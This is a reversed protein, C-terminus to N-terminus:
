LPLHSLSVPEPALEPAVAEEIFAALEVPAAEVPVPTLIPEDEDNVEEVTPAPVPASPAVPEVEAIEVAAVEEPRSVDVISEEIAAPEDVVVYEELSVPAPVPVPARAAPAVTIAPSIFFGSSGVEQQDYDAPVVNISGTDVDILSDISRDTIEVEPVPNARSHTQTQDSESGLLSFGISRELQPSPGKQISFSLPPPQTRRNM